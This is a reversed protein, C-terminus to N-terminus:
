RGVWSEDAGRVMDSRSVECILGSFRLTLRRGISRRELDLATWVSGTSKLVDVSESRKEGTLSEKM